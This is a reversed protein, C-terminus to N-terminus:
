YYTVLSIEVGGSFTQRSGKTSGTENGRFLEVLNIGESKVEFKYGKVPLDEGVRWGNEVLSVSTLNLVQCSNIGNDCTREEECSGILKLYSLNNGNIECNTTFQLTAQIFSDTKSSDLFENSNKNLSLSIFVLILVAVIIVIIAFGVMESQAKKNNM